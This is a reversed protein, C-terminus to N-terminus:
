SRFYLLFKCIQLLLKDGDTWNIFIKVVDKDLYFIKLKFM